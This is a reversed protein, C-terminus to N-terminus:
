QSKVLFGLYLKQTMGGIVLTEPGFEVFDRSILDLGSFTLFSLKSVLIFNCFVAFCYLWDAAGINYRYFGVAVL